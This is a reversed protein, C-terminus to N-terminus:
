RRKSQNERDTDDTSMVRAPDTGTMKVWTWLIGRLCSKKGITKKKHVLEARYTYQTCIIDTRHQLLTTKHFLDFWSHLYSFRKDLLIRYCRLHRIGTRAVYVISKM